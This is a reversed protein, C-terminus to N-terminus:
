KVENVLKKARSTAERIIDEQGQVYRDRMVIKGDIIVDTVDGGQLSYVIDSMINHGPTGRVSTDVLIIDASMGEVIAGGGTKLAKAGNKTLMDYGEQATLLTTDGSLKQQLAAIKVSETLDLNNNSACGDTGLTVQVNNKVMARYDLPKGVGLKMNSVPNHSVVAGTDGMRSIDDEELWVCHAAILRDNLLGLEDLYDTINKYGPYQSRFDDMEKKTEALHLHIPIGMKKSLESCRSLGDESVTYVSHPGLAPEVNEKGELYSIFDMTKDMESELKDRDGLDIMGYSLVGKMGMDIVADAASEMFFYMDNFAVTGSKIMELCALKTGWYVDESTLKAELPWIKDNLWQHLPLDDAYGRFLSMAAHTHTNVFGPVLYKGQADIVTDGDESGSISAIVGDKIVLDSKNKYGPIRADKIAISM